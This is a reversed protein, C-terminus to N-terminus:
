RRAAKTGHLASKGENWFIYTGSRTAVVVDIRGDGNLDTALIDSGAGSRNHILHPVLEAGGPLKPDRVTQYWYLVAPGYPDPDYFDDLHSFVRKGVLFDPIGDGDIDAMATGHPQSFSVGGANKDSPMGMV